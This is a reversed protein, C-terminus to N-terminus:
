KEFAGSRINLIFRNSYQATFTIADIMYLFTKMKLDSEIAEFRLMFSINNTM